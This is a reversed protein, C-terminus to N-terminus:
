VQDPKASGRDKLIYVKINRVPDFIQFVTDLGIEEHHGRLSNEWLTLKINSTKDENGLFRDEPLGSTAAKEILSAEKFSTPRRM